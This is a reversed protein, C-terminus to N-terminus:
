AVVISCFYRSNSTIYIATGNTLSNKIINRSMSLHQSCQVISHMFRLLQISSLTTHHLQSFKCQNFANIRKLNVLVNKDSSETLQIFNHLASLVTLIRLLPVAAVLCLGPHGRHNYYYPICCEALGVVEYLDWMFSTINFYNRSFDKSLSVREDNYEKGQQLVKGCVTRPQASFPEAGYAGTSIHINTQM